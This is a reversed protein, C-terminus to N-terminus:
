WGVEKKYYLSNIDEGPQIFSSPDMVWREIIKELRLLEKPELHNCRRVAHLYGDAYLRLDSTSFGRSILEQCADCLSQFHRIAEPHDLATM